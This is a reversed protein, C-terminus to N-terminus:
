SNGRTAKAFGRSYAPQYYRRQGKNNNSNLIAITIMIQISEIASNARHVSPITFDRAIIVPCNFLDLLAMFDPNQFVSYGAVTAGMVVIDPQFTSVAGLAADAAAPSVEPLNVEKLNIGLMRLYDQQMAVSSKNNHGRGGRGLSILGVRFMGSHELWSVAKLLIDSHNGGDYIAMM